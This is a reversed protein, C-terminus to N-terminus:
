CPQPSQWQFYVQPFIFRLIRRPSSKRNMAPPHAICSPTPRWSQGRLASHALGANKPDKHRRHVAPKPPNKIRCVNALRVPLKERLRKKWEKQIEKKCVRRERAMRKISISSNVPPQWSTSCCSLDIATFVSHVLNNLYSRSNKGAECQFLGEMCHRVDGRAWSTSPHCFVAMSKAFGVKTLCLRRLKICICILGLSTFTM